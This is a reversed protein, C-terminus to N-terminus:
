RDMFTICGTCAALVDLKRVAAHSSVGARLAHPVGVVAEEECVGNDVGALAAPGGAAPRALAAAAIALGVLASCPGPEEELAVRAVGEAAAEAEPQAVARGRIRVGSLGSRPIVAFGARLARSAGLGPGPCV